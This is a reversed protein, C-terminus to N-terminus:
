RTSSPARTRCRTSTSRPPAASRSTTGPRGRRRQVRRRRPAGHVDRVGRQALHREVVEHDRPRRVVHARDRARDHARRRSMEDLTVQDPDLLLRAERFTVCGLNEMAGFSFDPLAVLDCKEGPIRSATTTPSSSHDRVRRRRARLPHPAGQRSRARRAGRRRGRRGTRHARASRRGVRRSVDVDPDDDGFRVRVRGDGLSERDIEPGNSIALLGDAVVLTIAFIAKFEPEDFCPFARAPTRRRSSRRPSCGSPAPRTSTPAATTASCARPQGAGDFRLALERRGAPSRVSPRAGHHARDGADVTLTAPSRRRGPHASRARRRSGQRPPRDHRDAGHGRPRDHGRGLVPDIDADTEISCTTATPLVARTLRATDTM